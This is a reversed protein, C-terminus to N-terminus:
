PTAGPLVVGSPMGVEFGQRLSPALSMSTIMTPDMEAIM